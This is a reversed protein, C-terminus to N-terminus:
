TQTVRWVEDEAARRNERVLAVIFRIGWVAAAILGLAVAVRVSYRWFPGFQHGQYYGWLILAYLSSLGLEAIGEALKKRKLTFGFSTRDRTHRLIWWTVVNVGGAVALCLVLVWVTALDSTTEHRVMWAEVSAISGSLWDQIHNWLDQVDDQLM